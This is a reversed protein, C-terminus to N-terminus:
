AQVTAHMSTCAHRFAVTMHPVPAQSTVHLAELWAQVPVVTVHPMSAHLAVQAPVVM